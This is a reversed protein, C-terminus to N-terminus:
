LDTRITRGGVSAPAVTASGAPPAASPATATSGAPRPKGGLPLAPAGSVATVPPRAAGAGVLARASASASASASAASASASAAPETTATTVASPTAASEASVTATATATAASRAEDTANTKGGSGRSANFGVFAIVAALAVGGGIIYGRRSPMARARSTSSSPTLSADLAAGKAPSPKTEAISIHPNSDVLRAMAPESGADAPMDVPLTASLHAPELVVPKAARVHGSSEGLVPSASLDHPTRKGSGTLSDSIKVGHRELWDVLQTELEAATQIRTEPTKDLCRVVISDLEQDIEARLSRPSPPTELVIKFLLENFSDASHPTVGTLCEYLVVGLSYIDSRHDTSKSGRAQEPSMYVPSGLITGTQTNSVNEKTTDLLKSIGFDVIKAVERGSKTKAIVVNSPKMDRHFVSAAHAAALGRAVQTCLEVATLIPMGSSGSAAIRASLDEGTLFEMVLYPRGDALVGADFVQVVHPSEIHTSALAEREFRSVMQANSAYEAKLIKIAVKRGIRINVGELVQGWAGEGVVGVIKYKGELLYGSAPAAETM